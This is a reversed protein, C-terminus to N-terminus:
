FPFGDFCARGAFARPLVGRWQIGQVQAWGAKEPGTRCGSREDFRLM